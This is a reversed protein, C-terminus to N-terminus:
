TCAAADCLMKALSVKLCTDIVRRCPLTITEQHTGSTHSVATRGGGASSEVIVSFVAARQFLATGFQSLSRMVPITFLQKLFPKEGRRIRTIQNEADQQVRTAEAEDETGLSEIRRKGDWWFIVAYVGKRLKLSAM